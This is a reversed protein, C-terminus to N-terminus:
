YRAIEARTDPVIVAPRIGNARLDALIGPLALATQELTDHLLVIGHDKKMMEGVLYQRLENPDRIKWDLSDLTWEVPRMGHEAVFDNLSPTGLGYPFRFLLPTIGLPSGIQQSGRGISHSAEKLTAHMLSEMAYGQSGVIHGLDRAARILGLAQVTREGTFFFNSPWNQAELAM